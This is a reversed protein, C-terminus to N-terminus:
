NAAKGLLNLLGAEDLVSLGLEQAKELKSGAEEGAVVYDTHKSVSGTVKGGAQKIWEAADSRKITPLTGTLVFTKGLVGEVAERRASTASLSVGAAALGAFVARVAESDLEAFISDATKKALGEIRGSGKDPALAQVAEPDGAVYKHALELLADATGFYSALDEAMTEGVHRIALGVLVRSLGRSKARALSRVVNEASKKGMRELEALREATLTFLQEPSRVALQNMLQDILATGMGDIDMARRSAFHELRERVQAPCAPNPCYVFIEEALVAAGCAPCTSPREYRETDSPRADMQVSVVQPIIEGAKEVLVTDGVRVDKRELEVFNHLSARSVVTGGVFVPELEAVPTLKGSKGVQVMIRLLQTPKQEPPFKYAIGWHPHHGTSGLRRYLGLDEIKIVMGDIDFDLSGRRSQYQECYALAEDVGPAIFIEDHYVPAGVRELWAITESQQNPLSVGQAWAVQYLFAKVGIEGLGTPDKRKMLGACGNRPNVIPKEGLELLKQNHAEFAAHPWYLEGRLELEGTLASSGVRNLRLPVAGSEQVQRTIDDGRRGDGRTVARLLTGEVYTLSVSIGDIKPEVLLALPVEPALELEKRRREYWARLQDAPSVALGKSDRRATSLKELSLMAVRHEVTQFGETHDAGPRADLRETTPVGLSDALDSYRAVLDDFIADTLEPAGDRYAREHYRLQEGLQALEEREEREAERPAPIDAASETTAAAKSGAKPPRSTKRTAMGSRPNDGLGTSPLGWSRHQLAPLTPGWPGLRAAEALTAAVGGRAGAWVGGTVGSQQPPPDRYQSRM